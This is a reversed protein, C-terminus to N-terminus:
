DKLGWFMGLMQCSYPWTTTSSSSSSSLQKLRTRSQAVGYIAAWWARGDRPNELCSCQLPNGNGEGICSLSFHFHRRETTHLEEHGWPSCGVLSRRGHSKGPLLVPTPQWQRRWTTKCSVFLHHKGSQYSGVMGSTYLPTKDTLIEKLWTVLGPWEERVILPTVKKRLYYSIQSFATWFQHVARSLLFWWPCLDAKNWDDTVPPRKELNCFPQKM